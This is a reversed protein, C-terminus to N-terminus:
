SIRLRRVPRVRCSNSKSGYSQSGSSFNQYWTYGSSHQLSSWYSEAKMELVALEARNAWALDLERTAPLYWDTNGGGTHGVCYEAAPHASLGADAMLQTNHMGNSNVFTGATSTDSTKWMLTAPAEGEPGAMIIAYEGVDAGGSEVVVDGIYHGGGFEEGIVTPLDSERIVVTFTRSESVGWAPEGPFYTAITWEVGDDSYEVYFDEPARAARAADDGAQLLVEKVDVPQAFEYAVWQPLLTFQDANWATSPSGDFALVPGFGPSYTSATASGGAAVNPGGVQERFEVEALLAKYNGGERTKTLRIRWHLHRTDVHTTNVLVEDSFAEESATFASVRYYVDVDQPTETDTWETVDPGLEALAPPMNATDMPSLSRYIRHGLEADNNDDWTIRANKM